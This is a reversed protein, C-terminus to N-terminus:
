KSSKVKVRIRPLGRDDLSKGPNAGRFGIPQPRHIPPDCPLTSQYGSGDVRGEAAFPGWGCWHDRHSDHDASMHHTGKQRSRVSPGRGAGAELLFVQDTQEM